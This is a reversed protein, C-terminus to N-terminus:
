TLPSVASGDSWGTIAIKVPYYLNAPVNLPGVAVGMDQFDNPICGAAVAAVVVAAVVSHSVLAARCPTHTTHHALRSHRSLLCASKSPYRHLRTSGTTCEVSPDCCFVCTYQVPLTLAVIRRPSVHPLLLVEFVRTCQYPARSSHLSPMCSDTLLLCKSYGCAQLSLLMWTPPAVCRLLLLLLLLLFCGEACGASRSERGCSTGSQTHKLSRHATGEHPWYSTHVFALGSIHLSKRFPQADGEVWSCM